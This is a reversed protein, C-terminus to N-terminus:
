KKLKKIIEEAVKKGSLIMGGFIPGMRYSGFVANACMGTVWLGPYIEKSNELIIKEAKEAYMSGEGRVEFNIKNKKAFISVVLAEHGTADVVHKSWFSVPDVHLKSLKLANWIVVVGRVAKERVIVDEVYLGPVIKVGADIAKSALKVAFEVSSAVYVGNKKKYKVKFEDFIDLVEEQVVVFPFLNGGGWIGGGIYLNREIVSVKYGSRAIYYACTLGSPGAGVIIVDQELLDNLFDFGEEFISKTIKVEMEM